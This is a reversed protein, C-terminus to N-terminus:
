IYIHTHSWLCLLIFLPNKSLSFLVWEVLLKFYLLTTTTFCSQILDLKFITLACRFTFIIFYLRHFIIFYWFLAIVSHPYYAGPATNQYSTSLASMIKMRRKSADFDSNISALLLSHSISQWSGRSEKWCSHM